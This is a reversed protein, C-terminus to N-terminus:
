WQVVYTIFVDISCASENMWGVFRPGSGYKGGRPTHAYWATWGQLEWVYFAAEANVKPDKLNSFGHISNIQWLGKDTSGNRNRNLALPNGNSEAYAVAVATHLESGPFGASYALSAVQLFDEHHVSDCSPPRVVVVEDEPTAEFHYQDVEQREFHIVLEEEAYEASGGVLLAIGVLLGALM